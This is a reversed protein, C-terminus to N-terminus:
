SSTAIRYIEFNGATGIQEYGTQPFYGSFGMDSRTIIYKIGSKRAYRRFIDPDIQVGFRVVLSLIRQKNKSHIVKNVTNEDTNELQWKLLCKRGIFNSISPDYQRLETLQEDTYLASKPTGTAKSDEEILASISLIADSTKYINQPTYLYPKTSSGCEVIFAACCVSLCLCAAALGLTKWRSKRDASKKLPFTCICTFAYSLVINVPVLWFLRRFRPTLHILDAVPVILFPNFVTLMMFFLPYVFASKLYKNKFFCFFLICIFYAIVFWEIGEIATFLMRFFFNVM